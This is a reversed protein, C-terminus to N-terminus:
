AGFLPTDGYREYGYATEQFVGLVDLSVRAWSYNDAAFCRCRRRDPVWGEGRLVGKITEALGESSIDRAVLGPNLRNLIEVTAGVPTGVVPIGCAMAEVTVLGFGEYAVSPLAMVDAARYYLLLDKEGIFGTFVVRGSVGLEDALAELDARLPGEGGVVLLLDGHEPTLLPVSRILLDIGVRRVLRRVTFVIKAKEPLGLARRAQGRDGPSFRDIDCGGSLVTVKEPDVRYEEALLKKFEGCLVILRDCRRYVYGEIFKKLAWAVRHRASPPRGGRSLEVRAEGAWPGQFNFVVPVGKFLGALMPLFVYLAFHPNYVDCRGGRLESALARYFNLVRSPMNKGPVKRLRLTGSHEEGPAEGLVLATVQHGRGSLERAVESFYRGLGGPERDFWTIASMLIRMSM